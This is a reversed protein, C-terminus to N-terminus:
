DSKKGCLETNKGWKPSEISSRESWGKDRQSPTLQQKDNRSRRPL